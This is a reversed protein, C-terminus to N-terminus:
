QKLTIKELIKIIEDASLNSQGTILYKEHLWIYNFSEDKLILQVEEHGIYRQDVEANETDVIYRLGDEETLISQELSFYQENKRFVVSYLREKQFVDTETFGEPLYEFTIQEFESDSSEQSNYHYETYETVVIEIVEVLKHYGAIVAEPVALFTMIVCLLVAVLGNRTHYQWGLSVRKQKIEGRKVKEIFEQMEQEFEDSFIHASYENEDSLAELKEDRLLTAASRLIDDNLKM